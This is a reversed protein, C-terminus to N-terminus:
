ERLSGLSARARVPLRGHEEDWGLKWTWRLMRLVLDVLMADRRHRGEAMVFWADEIAHGPNVLWGDAIATSATGGSIDPASFHRIVLGCPREM